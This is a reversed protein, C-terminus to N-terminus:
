EIPDDASRRDQKLGAGDERRRQRRVRGASARRAAPPLRDAPRPSPVLPQAHHNPPVALGRDGISRLIQTAQAVSRSLTDLLQDVSEASPRPIPTGVDFPRTSVEALTGPITAVHMALQGLSQSKPHPRWELHDEPIRELVRRTAHTEQELEQILEEITAM